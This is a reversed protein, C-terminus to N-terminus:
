WRYKDFNEPNAWDSPNNWERPEHFKDPDFIYVRGNTSPSEAQMFGLALLEKNDWADHALILVVRSCHIDRLRALVHAGDHKSMHELQDAVIALDARASDPIDDASELRGLELVDVDCGSVTAGIEGGVVLLSRYDM